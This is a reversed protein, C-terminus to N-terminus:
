AKGVLHAAGASVSLRLQSSLRRNRGRGTESLLPDGSRSEGSAFDGAGGSSLPRGVIDEERPDSRWWRAESRKYRKGEGEREAGVPQAINEPWYDGEVTLGAENEGARTSKKPEIREEENGTQGLRNGRGPGHM